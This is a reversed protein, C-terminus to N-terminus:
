GHTAFQAATRMDVERVARRAAAEEDYGWLSINWDEEVHAARWAAEIDLVGRAVALAILASGSLATMVHMGALRFPGEVGAVARGFTAIAEPPQRVPVIGQGLIFNAGLGDSAWDLLPDWAESERAVLADPEEARYCVLDSGAYRIIDERVAQMENAVGDIATNALRTGPMTTPDIHEGQAAWEAAILDALQATPLALLAKGPTRIPRGDLRVEFGADGEFVEAAEYFRRPADKLRAPEATRFRDVPEGDDRPDFLESM